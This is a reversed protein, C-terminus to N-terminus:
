VTSGEAVRPNPTGVRVYDFIWTYSRLGGFSLNDRPMGLSIPELGGVSVLIQPHELIVYILAYLQAGM